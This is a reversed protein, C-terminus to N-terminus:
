RLNRAMALWLVTYMALAVFHRVWDFLPFLGVQVHNTYGLAHNIIAPFSIM